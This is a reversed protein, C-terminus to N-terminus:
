SGPLEAEVGLWPKAAAQEYNEALQECRRRLARYEEYREPRKDARRLESRLVWTDAITSWAGGGRFIGSAEATAIAHEFEAM